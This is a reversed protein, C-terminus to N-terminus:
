PDCGYARGGIATALNEVCQLLDGGLNLRDEVLIRVDLFDRQFVGLGFVEIKETPLVSKGGGEFAGELELLNGVDVGLTIGGGLHLVARDREDILFGARNDESRVVRKVFLAPAIKPFDLRAFSGDDCNGVLAVFRNLFLGVIDDEDGRGDGREERQKSDHWQM